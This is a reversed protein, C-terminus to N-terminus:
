ERELLDQVGRVSALWVWPGLGKAGAMELGCHVGIFWSLAEDQGRKSLDGKSNFWGIAEGRERFLFRLYAKVAANDDLDPLAPREAPAAAPKSKIQITTM